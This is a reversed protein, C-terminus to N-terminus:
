FSFVVHSIILYPKNTDRKNPSERVVFAIAEGEKIIKEIGNERASNYYFNSGAIEVRWSFGHKSKIPTIKEVVGKMLLPRGNINKYPSREARKERNEQLQTRSKQEINEM